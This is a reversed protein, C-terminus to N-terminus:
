RHSNRARERDRRVATHRTRNHAATHPRAPNSDVTRVQSPRATAKQYLTDDLGFAKAGKDGLLSHFEYHGLKIMASFTDRQSRGWQANEPADPLADAWDADDTEAAEDDLAAADSGSVATGKAARLVANHRGIACEDRAGDGGLGVFPDYAIYTEHLPLLGLHEKDVRDVCTRYWESVHQDVLQQSPNTYFTPRQLKARDNPDNSRMELLRALNAIEDAKGQVPTGTLGLTHQSHVAFQRIAAAMWTSPNSYLHAEDVITLAIPSPKSPQLKGEVSVGHPLLEFLPHKLPTRRTAPDRFKKYDVQEETPVNRRLRPQGPRLKMFTRYAKMVVNCTTVIVQADKLQHSTVKDQKPVLLVEKDLVTWKKVTEHWMYLVSKPVIIVTKTAPVAEKRSRAEARMRHLGAIVLIATITKGTGVEHIALMSANRRDLSKPEGRKKGHAYTADMGLLHNTATVQHPYVTAPAGTVPDDTPFTLIGRPNDDRHEHDRVFQRVEEEKAEWEGRAKLQAKTKQKGEAM